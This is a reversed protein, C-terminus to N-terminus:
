NPSPPVVTEAKVHFVIRTNEPHEPDISVEIPDDPDLPPAGAERIVAVEEPEVYFGMGKALGTMAANALAGGANAAFRDVFRETHDDVVNLDDDIPVGEPQPM